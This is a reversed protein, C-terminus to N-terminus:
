SRKLVEEISKRLAGLEKSRVSRKSLELVNVADRLVTEYEQRRRCQVLDCADSANERTNNGGSALLTRLGGAIRCVDSLAQQLYQESGQTQSLGLFDAMKSDPVPVAEQTGESPRGDERTDTRFVVIAGTIQGVSGEFPAISCIIRQRSGAKTVIASRRGGVSGAEKKRLAELVPHEASITQSAGPIRLVETVMRPHLADLEWGTVSEAIPNMFVVRGHDDTVILGDGMSRLVAGYWDGLASVKREMGLRLLGFEIAAQVDKLRFPKFIYGLPSTAKARQITAADNRATLYISPIGSRNYLEEAIEIGDMSGDLNIDVLAVDPREISVKAFAEEGSAVVGLVGYPVRALQKHLLQGIGADDEIILINPTAM